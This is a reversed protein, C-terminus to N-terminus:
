KEAEDGFEEWLKKVYINVPYAKDIGDLYSAEATVAVFPLGAGGCM